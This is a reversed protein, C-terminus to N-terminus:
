MANLTEVLSGYFGIFISVRDSKVALGYMRASPDFVVLYGASDSNPCEDLVIWADIESPGSPGGANEFRTLRPPLMRHQAINELTIGHANDLPSAHALDRDFDRELAAADMERADM